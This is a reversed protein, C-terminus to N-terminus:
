FLFSTFCKGGNALVLQNVEDIVHVHRLKVRVVCLCSNSEESLVLVVLMPIVPLLQNQFIDLVSLHNSAHVGRSTTELDIWPELPM